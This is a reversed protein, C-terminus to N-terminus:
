THLLKYRVSSNREMKQRGCIIGVADGTNEILAIDAERRTFQVQKPINPSDADVQLTLGTRALTCRIRLCVDHDPDYSNGHKEAGQNGPSQYEEKKRLSIPNSLCQSCRLLFLISLRVSDRTLTRSRLVASGTVSSVVEISFTLRESARTTVLVCHASLGAPPRRTCARSPVRNRAGPLYRARAPLSIRIARLSRVELGSVIDKNSCLTRCM